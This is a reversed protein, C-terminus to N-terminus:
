FMRKNKDKGETDNNDKVNRVDPIGQEEGPNVEFLLDIFHEFSEKL